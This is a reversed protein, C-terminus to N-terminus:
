WVFPILRKTKVQYASYKDPFLELMIKEEKDIRPVFILCFVIFMGIGFINGTLATAFELLLIGTYIPHRVYKYPGSTILEHQEKVAPQVSWNRGLHFRAWIAFGVGIVALVAFVWDLLLPPQFINHSFIGAPNAYHATGTTIRLVVFIIAIAVIFRLLWYQQWWRSFGGRIDRKVNFASVIWVLFFAAWCLLIIDGIPLATVWKKAPPSRGIASGM